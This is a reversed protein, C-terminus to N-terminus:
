TLLELYKAGPSSYRWMLAGINIAVTIWFINRFERKSSKHRLFQQALAAGPWGGAFSLFHL